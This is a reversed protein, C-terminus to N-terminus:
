DAKECEELLSLLDWYDKKVFAGSDTKEYIVTMNHHSYWDQNGIYKVDNFGFCNDPLEATWILSNGEKRMNCEGIIEFSDGEGTPTVRTLLDQFSPDDVISVTSYDPNEEAHGIWNTTTVEYFEKGDSIFVGWGYTSNEQTIDVEDPLDDVILTYVATKNDLVQINIGEASFVMGAVQSGSGSDDDSNSHVAQETTIISSASANEIQDVDSSKQDKSKQGNCSCILLLVVMCIIIVLLRKRM